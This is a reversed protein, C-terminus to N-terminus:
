TVIVLATKGTNANSLAAGVTVGPADDLPVGGGAVGRRLLLVPPSLPRGPTAAVAWDRVRHAPEGLGFVHEAHPLAGVRAAQFLM